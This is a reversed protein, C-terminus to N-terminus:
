FKSQYDLQNVAQYAELAARKTFFGERVLNSMPALRKQYEQYREETMGDLVPKIDALNEVAFGLGNSEIWSAAAAHKWIIIPLKAVLYSSLKHPYNYKTYEAGIGEVKEFSDSVWVLAFGDTLAHPLETPLKSGCYNVHPNKIMEENPFPGFVDMNWGDPVNKLFQAKGLNGSYIIHRSFHHEPITTDEPIQYGFPGQTIIPIGIPWVKSLTEKMHESHVIMGDFLPALVGFTLNNFQQNLAEIQAEPSVADAHTGTMLSDYDHWMAIVKADYLLHAREVLKKIVRGTSGYNPLQVILTDGRHFPSLAGDMRVTLSEDSEEPMFYIELALRKAGIQELHDAYDRKPKYLATNMRGGNLASDFNIDTVWLM